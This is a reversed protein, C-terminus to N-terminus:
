KTPPTTLQKLEKYSDELTKNLQKDGDRVRDILKKAAQEIRETEKKNEQYEEQRAKKLADVHELVANEYEFYNPLTPRISFQYEWSAGKCCIQFATKFYSNWDMGSSSM